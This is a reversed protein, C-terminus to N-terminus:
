DLVLRRLETESLPVHDMDSVAIVNEGVDQKIQKLLMIKEEITDKTIFRYVTVPHAQGIRYCRDIAQNEVAPNWWPDLLFVYNAKTLNLGVGGTKLSIFFLCPKKENQFSQVVEMRNKTNGDLYFYPIQRKQFARKVIDLHETFQSFVLVSNGGRIIEEGVELIADLKGSSAGYARSMLGPHCAIQRLRLLITLFNLTINQQQHDLINKREASLTQQYLGRQEDNLPCYLPIEIKAPLEDCVQTKMRRLIYPQTLTKLRKLDKRNDRRYHRRFSNASGFFGPMLFDFISYLDLLRNELPTGTLAIRNRAPIKKIKRTTDAHPNKIIQAEDLILNDWTVAHYDAPNTRALGYTTMVLDYATFDRTIGGEKCTLYKLVPAFKEIENEWNFILTKPVVLLTKEGRERMKLLMALVQLTKGLGMDDALIGGFGLDKLACLWQFGRKQYPRLVDALPAPVTHSLNNGSAKGFDKLAVVDADLTHARGEPIHEFLIPFENKELIIRNDHFFRTLFHLEDMLPSVLGVHNDDFRIWKENKQFASLVDEIPISSGCGTVQGKIRIKGKALSINLEPKSNLNLRQHEITLLFGNRALFTLNDMRGVSSLFFDGKSTQRQLGMKVLINIFAAERKLDREIEIGNELDAFTRQSVSHLIFKKGYQFYLNAFKLGRDLDFVPKFDSISKKKKININTIEVAESCTSLLQLASEFENSALPRGLPVEKFIKRFCEDLIVIDSGFFVLVSGLFVTYDCESYNKHDIYLEITTHKIRLEPKVRDLFKFTIAHGSPDCLIGKSMCGTVFKKIILPAIRLTSFEVNGSYFGGQTKRIAIESGLAEQFLIRDAFRDSLRALDSTFYAKKKGTGVWISGRLEREELSVTFQGWAKSKELNYVFIIRNM